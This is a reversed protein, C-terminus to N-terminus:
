IFRVDTRVYRNGRWLVTFIDFESISLITSMGTPIYIGSKLNTSTSNKGTRGAGVCVVRAWEPAFVLDRPLVPETVNEFVSVM